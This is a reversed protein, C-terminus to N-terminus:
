HRHLGRNQKGDKSETLNMDSDEEMNEGLTAACIDDETSILRDHRERIIVKKTSRDDNMYPSATGKDLLSFDNLSLM